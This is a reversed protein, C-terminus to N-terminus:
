LVPNVFVLKPGAGASLERTQPLLPSRLIAMTLSIGSNSSIKPWLLIIQHRGQGEQSASMFASLSSNLKLYM